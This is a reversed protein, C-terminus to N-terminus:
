AARRWLRPLLDGYVALMDRVYREMGYRAEV